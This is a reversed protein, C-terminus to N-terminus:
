HKVWEELRAAIMEGLVARSLGTVSALDSFLMECTALAHSISGHESEPAEEAM